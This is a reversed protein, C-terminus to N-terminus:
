HTVAVSFIIIFVIISAHQLTRTLMYMYLARTYMHLLQDNDSVEPEDGHHHLAEHSPITVGVDRPIM